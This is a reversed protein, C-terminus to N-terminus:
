GPNACLREFSELDRMEAVDKRSSWDGFYQEYLKLAEEGKVWIPDSPNYPVPGWSVPAIQVAERSSDSLLYQWGQWLTFADLECRALRGGDLSDMVRERIQVSIYPRSEDVSVRVELEGRNVQGCSFFGDGLLGALCRVAAHIPPERKQELHREPFEIADIREESFPHSAEFLFQDGDRLYLMEELKGKYFGNEEFEESSVPKPELISWHIMRKEPHLQVRCGIVLGYDRARPGFTGLEGRTLAVEASDDRTWVYARDVSEPLQTEMVRVYQAVCSSIARQGGEVLQDDVDIACAALPTLLSLLVLSKM